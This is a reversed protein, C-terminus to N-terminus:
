KTTLTSLTEDNARAVLNNLILRATSMEMERMPITAEVDHHRFSPNEFSLRFLLAEFGGFGFHINWGSEKLFFMPRKSTKDKTMRIEKSLDTVENPTM